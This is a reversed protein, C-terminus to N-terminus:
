HGAVRHDGAGPTTPCSTLLEAWGRGLGSNDIDVFSVNTKGDPATFVERMQLRPAELLTKISNPALTDNWVEYRGAFVPFKGFALSKESGATLTVSVTGAEGTDSERAFVLRARERNECFLRWQRTRFTSGNGIRTQVVKRVSPHEARELTWATEAMTRTDIGFRYLEPRTLAHPNEFKVTEILDGLERSIGMAAIFSTQELDVQVMSRDRLAAIVESSAKGVPVLRPNHVAMVADPAVERTTAGFFMYSCASNCSARDTSIEAEVELGSTKIKFCADDFQSGAACATAITRGIRAIGGHVRLLRGITLAQGMVGGPSNFYIPRTTDKM